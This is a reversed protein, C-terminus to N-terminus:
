GIILRGSPATVTISLSLRVSSNLISRYVPLNRMGSIAPVFFSEREMRLLPSNKVTKIEGGSFM